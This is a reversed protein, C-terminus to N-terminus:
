TTPISALSAYRAWDGAAARRWHNTTDNRYGDLRLRVIRTVLQGYLLLLTGAIRTALETNTTTLCDTPKNCAPPTIM